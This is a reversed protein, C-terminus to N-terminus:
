LVLSSFEKWTSVILDAAPYTAQRKSTLLCTYMGAHNAGICDKGYSDGVFLVHEPQVAIRSLLFSFAKPGPKLYGSDEASYAFDVLDEIGLTKLKQALPFDSFVGIRLGQAKAQVLADRLDPYAKISLFSREWAQYFQNEIAARVKQESSSCRMRGCVLNAQRALLGERNAPVTDSHEQVRRFEKRAWNFAAALRLSPFSSRLMRMTLMRKPYLTGDIDLCLVTIGQEVLFGM